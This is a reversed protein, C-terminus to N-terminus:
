LGGYKKTYEIEYPIAAGEAYVRIYNDGPQLEIWKSYPSIGYLISSPSNSRTVTASKAGPITSIELVDGAILPASFDMTEIVGGPTKHYITFESLTRNVQLTFVIGTEVTGVYNHLVELEGSTTFGPRLVPVPDYFDPKFCMVSIDVTPDKSFMSTEFSEVRGSIDVTVDDVYFRFNVSSKPMFFNYLRRRLDRVSEMTYDPELRIKFKLNRSDRRSSQYQQGDLQAFSSSVLTAKVPDLGEVEEIVYGNSPDELSLALLVGLDTKVDVRTLM